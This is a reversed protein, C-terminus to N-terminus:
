QSLVGLLACYRETKNEIDTESVGYYSYLDKTIKKFHGVAKKRGCYSVAFSDNIYDIALELRSDEMRIEYIHFDMPIDVKTYEIDPQMEKRRFLLCEKLVAQQVIFDPNKDDAQVAHYREVAYAAVEGLTHCGSAIKKQMRRRRRQYIGKRIRVRLPLKATQESMIISTPGDAGGIIGIAAADDMCNKM